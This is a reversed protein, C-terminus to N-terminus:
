WNRLKVTYVGDEFTIEGEVPHEDYQTKHEAWLCFEEAEEKTDFTTWTVGLLPLDNLSFM